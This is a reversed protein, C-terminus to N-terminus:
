YRLQGFEFYMPSMIKIHDELHEFHGVVEWFDHKNAGTKFIHFSEGSLGGRVRSFLLRLALPAQQSTFKLRRTLPVLM